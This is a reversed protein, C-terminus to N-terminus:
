FWFKIKLKFDSICSVSIPLWQWLQNWSDNFVTQCLVILTTLNMNLLICNYCLYPRKKCTICIDNQLMHMDDHINYLLRIFKNNYMIVVNLFPHYGTSEFASSNLAPFNTKFYKLSQLPLQLASHPRKHLLMVRIWFLSSWYKM